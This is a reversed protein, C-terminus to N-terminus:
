HWKLVSLRELKKFDVVLMRVSGRYAIEDGIIAVELHGAEGIKDWRCRWPYDNSNKLGRTGLLSDIYM